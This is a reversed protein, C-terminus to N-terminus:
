FAHKTVREVAAIAVKGAPIQDAIWTGAHRNRRVILAYFFRDLRQAHRGPSACLVMATLIFGTSTTTIPRPPAPPTATSGSARAPRLTAASSAPVQSSGRLKRASSISFPTRPHGEETCFALRSTGVTRRLADEGLWGREETCAM